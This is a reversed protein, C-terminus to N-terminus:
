SCKLGDTYPLGKRMEPMYSDNKKRWQTLYNEKIFTDTAWVNDFVSRDIDWEGCFSFPGTEPLKGNLPPYRHCYGFDDNKDWYGCVVCYRNDIM